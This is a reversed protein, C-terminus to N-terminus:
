KRGLDCKDAAVAAWYYRMCWNKAGHSWKDKERADPLDPSLNPARTIM